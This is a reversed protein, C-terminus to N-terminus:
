RRLWAIPPRQSPDAAAAPRARLERNGADIQYAWDLTVRAPGAATVRFKAFHNDRTWVVYAHGVVAEVAGSPSWGSEGDPAFDVRDLSTVYGADQIDASNGAFMQQHIGGITDEYFGFFIDAPPAITNTRAFTSFDYGINTDSALYNNLVLGTGAPRPTDFVDDYSLESEAGVRNVAAVAFFRTQGNTLGTVAYEVYEARVPAPIAAIRTYDCDLGGCPGEYIRYGVVDAESNALWVLTVEHDGTVSFLGRPAAPPALPAMTKENCGALLIGLAMLPLLLRNM